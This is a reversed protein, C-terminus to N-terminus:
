YGSWMLGLPALLFFWRGLFEPTGGKAKEAYAREEGRGRRPIEVFGRCAANEAGGAPRLGRNKARTVRAKAARSAARAAINAAANVDRDMVGHEPCVSDKHTPHSVKAGCVRCQQSANAPSVAVVWGGNQSVYRALWQVFM